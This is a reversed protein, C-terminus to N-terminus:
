ALEEEQDTDIDRSAGVSDQQRQPRRRRHSDEGGGVVGGGPEEGPPEGGGGSQTPARHQQRHCGDATVPSARIVQQQQQNPRSTKEQPRHHHNPTPRRSQYPLPAGRRPTSPGHQPAATAMHKQTTRSTRPLTRIKATSPNTAPTPITLASPNNSQQHRPKRLPIRPNGDRSQPQQRSAQVRVRPDDLAGAQGPSIHRGNSRSVSNGARSSTTSQFPMKPQAPAGQMHRGQPWSNTEPAPNPIPPSPPRYASHIRREALRPPTRQAQVQPSPPRYAPHIRREALRPPTRQAEVQAPSPQKAARHSPFRTYPGTEAHATRGPSPPHQTPVAQQPKGRDKRAREVTQQRTEQEREKSKGQERERRAREVRQWRLAEEEAKKNQEYERASALAREKLQKERQRLENDRSKCMDLLRKACTVSCVTSIDQNVRTLDRCDMSKRRLLGCLTPSAEARTEYYSQCRHVKGQHAHGCKYHCIDLHCM